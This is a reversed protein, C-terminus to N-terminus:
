LYYKMMIAQNTKLSDMVLLRNRNLRLIGKYNYKNLM